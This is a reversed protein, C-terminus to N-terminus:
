TIFYLCFKATIIFYTPHAHARRDYIPRLVPFDGEEFNGVNRTEVNREQEINLDLRSSASMLLM